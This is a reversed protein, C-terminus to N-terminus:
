VEKNEQAELAEIRPVVFINVIPCILSAAMMVLAMMPIAGAMIGLLPKALLMIVLAFVVYAVSTGFALKQSKKM